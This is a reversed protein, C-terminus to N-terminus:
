ESGFAKARMNAVVDALVAAREARQDDTLVVDPRAQEQPPNAAKAREAERKGRTTLLISLIDGPTPRLRPNDRNWQRLAYVVQKLTWDQLEDAWWALQASRIEEVEHPQFYASLAVRVEFIM